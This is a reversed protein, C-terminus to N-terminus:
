FEYPRKASFHTSNKTLSSRPLAPRIVDDFLSFDDRSFLFEDCRSSGNRYNFTDCSVAEAM